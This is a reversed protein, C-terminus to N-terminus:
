SILAVVVPPASTVGGTIELIETEEIVDFLAVMVQLVLSGPLLMTSYPVVM